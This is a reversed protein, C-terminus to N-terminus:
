AKPKAEATTNKIDIYTPNLDIRDLRNNDNQARGMFKQHQKVEYLTYSKSPKIERIAGWTVGHM